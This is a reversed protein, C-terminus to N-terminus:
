KEIQNLGHIMTAEMLYTPGGKTLLAWGINDQISLGSDALKSLTIKQPHATHLIYFKKRGYHGRLSNLISLGQGHKREGIGDFDVFILDSARYDDSTTNMISNKDLQKVNDWGMNRLNTITDSQNQDDVFLIQAQKKSVASDQSRFKHNIEQPQNIVTDRYVDGYHVGTNNTGGLQTSKNKLNMGDKQKGFISPILNALTSSILNSIFEM